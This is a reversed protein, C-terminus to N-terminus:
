AGLQTEASWELATGRNRNMKAHMYTITVTESHRTMAQEEYSRRKTDPFRQAENNHDKWLLKM